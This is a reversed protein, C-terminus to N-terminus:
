ESIEQLRKIAEVKRAQHEQEAKANSAVQDRWDRRDARLANALLAIREGMPISTDFLKQRDAPMLNIKNAIYAKVHEDFLIPMIPAEIRKQDAQPKPPPLLGSVVAQQVAIERLGKDWGASVEYVPKRNERKAIDVQREYAPIFAMRAGIKDGAALIPRAVEFARAMEGSWVVTSAENIAPLAIAWAENASLWGGAPALFDLVAKLTLKGSCERRVRTLAHCVDQYAYESLDDAMLVAVAPKIDTGMIEATAIVLAITQEYEANNM